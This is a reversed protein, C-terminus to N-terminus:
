AEKQYEYPYPPKGNTWMGMRSGVKKGRSLRKLIAKYERIAIFGKMDIIFEDNDDNLNYTENETIVLTNSKSLAKKIIDQDGM